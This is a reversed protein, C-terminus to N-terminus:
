PELRNMTRPFPISTRVHKLGCIWTVLRELGFGFGSHPVSGYRRLDLYWKFADLSLGHEEIKKTLTELDIERESGGIVEGYGEPALLDSCLVRGADEPDQKMYFAKVKSPYQTVFIPTDYQQTLLTEDDAGLDDDEPIDSGLARLKAVADKHHLRPFPGKIAELKSVDRELVTALEYRREELVRKLIYLILDEQIQMNGQWDVFAAEADMMWFENLHRRTKSKEARFVPGFDYVRRHGFIGAELYLQGSQTLYASRGFHDVEYLTTTGECANPTLIPADFRIFGHDHLFEMTARELTDRVRMIAWQRSSRHWLHRNDMLFDVGHKKPAIPYDVSPSIMEFSAGHVEVGTPSRDDKVVTGSVRVSSEQGAHTLAEWATADLESAQYVTQVFGTGDRLQLFAIKGSSRVGHVWGELTVAGGIYTSLQDITTNM